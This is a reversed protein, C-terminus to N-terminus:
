EALEAEKAKYEKESRSRFEDLPVSGGFSGFPTKVDVSGSTGGFLSDKVGVSVSGELMVVHFGARQQAVASEGTDCLVWGPVAGQLGLLTMVLFFVGISLSGGRLDCCCGKVAM